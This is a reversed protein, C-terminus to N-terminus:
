LNIIDVSLFQSCIYLVKDTLYGIPCCDLIILRIIDILLGLAYYFGNFLGFNM